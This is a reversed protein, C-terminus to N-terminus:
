YGLREARMDRYGEPWLKTTIDPWYGLFANRKARLRREIEWVVHVVTYLCIAFIATEVTM